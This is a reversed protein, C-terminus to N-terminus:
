AREYDSELPMSTVLTPLMLKGSFRAAIQNILSPQRCNAEAPVPPGSGRVLEGRLRHGGRRLKKHDEVIFHGNETGLETSLRVHVGRQDGSTVAALEESSVNTRHNELLADLPGVEGDAFVMCGVSFYYDGSQYQNYQNPAKLM